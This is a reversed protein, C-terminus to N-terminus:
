SFEDLSNLQRRLEHDRQRRPVGSEGTVAENHRLQDAIARFRETESGPEDGRLDGVTERKAEGSRGREKM